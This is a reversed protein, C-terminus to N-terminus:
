FIKNESQWFHDLLVSIIKEVLLKFLFIIVDRIKVELM